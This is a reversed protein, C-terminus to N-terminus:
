ENVTISEVVSDYLEQDLDVGTGYTSSSITVLLEDYPADAPLQDETVYGAIAPHGDAAVLYTVAPNGLLMAERPNEVGGPNSRLVLPIYESPKMQENTQPDVAIESLSIILPAQKFYGDRSHKGVFVTAGYAGEFGETHLVAYGAPLSFSLPVRDLTITQQNNSPQNTNITTNTNINANSNRAAKEFGFDYGFYFGGLVGIALGALLSLISINKNM